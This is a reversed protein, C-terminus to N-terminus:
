GDELHLLVAIGLFSTILAPSWAAMIVPLKSSVGLAYVVDSLFISFFAQASESVMMVAAGGRRIPRLSFTAALIVVAALMLPLALHTHWHLLHRVGSFGTNESFGSSAPFRGFLYQRRPAFSDNINGRTLDTPLRRFDYRTPPQNPATVIASGLRWFGDELTASPADTRGIFRDNDQMLFVIVKDIRM